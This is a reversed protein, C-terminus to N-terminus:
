GNTKPTVKFIRYSAIFSTEPDFTFLSVSLVNTSSVFRRYQVSDGRKMLKRKEGIEGDHIRVFDSDENLHLNEVVLEVIDGHPAVMVWTCFGNHGFRDLVGSKETLLGGCKTARPVATVSGDSISLSHVSHGVGLMVCLKPGRSVVKKHPWQGLRDISEVGCYPGGTIDLFNHLEGSERFLNMSTFSLEAKFGRPAKYSHVCFENVRSSDDTAIENIEADAEEVTSQTCAEQEFHNLTPETASLEGYKIVFAANTLINIEGGASQGIHVKHNENLLHGETLCTTGDFLLMYTSSSGSTFEVNMNIRLGPGVNIRIRCDDGDANRTLINRLSNDETNQSNSVVCDQLLPEQDESTLVSFTQSVPNAANSGTTHIHMKGSSSIYKDTTRLLKRPARTCDGDNAFLVMNSSVNTKPQIAFAKPSIDRLDFGCSNKAIRFQVDQGTTVTIYKHCNKDFHPEEIESKVKTIVCLLLLLVVCRM